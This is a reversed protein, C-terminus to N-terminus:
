ICATNETTAGQGRPAEGTETRRWVKVVPQESKMGARNTETNATWALALTAGDAVTAAFLLAVFVYVRGPMQYVHLGQNFPQIQIHRRL